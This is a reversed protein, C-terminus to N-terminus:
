YESHSINLIDLSVTDSEQNHILNVSATTTDIIDGMFNYSTWTGRWQGLAQNKLFLNWQLDEEETQSIKAPGGAIGGEESSSSFHSSSSRQTQRQYLSPYPHTLVTNSKTQARINGVSASPSHIPSTLSFAHCSTASLALATVALLNM